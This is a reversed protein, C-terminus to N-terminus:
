GISGQTQPGGHAADQIKCVTAARSVAADSNSRSATHKLVARAVIRLAHLFEPDDAYGLPPLYIRMLRAALSGDGFAPHPQGQALRFADAHSAELL